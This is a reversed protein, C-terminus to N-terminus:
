TTATMMGEGLYRSLVQQRALNAPGCWSVEGRQLLLCEDAFGLARHVYQETVIVTVGLRRAQELGDFVADVMLPALGLSLEDAVLVTPWMALARALSLMQQEGGSLTAALQHRRAGLVPFLEFARELAQHRRRRDGALRTAMRLNELVTLERFVGRGEPLHVVGARRIRYAPWRSVDAGGVVVRGDHPVLGSVARALSSKGAGNPGLVALVAGPALTFSVARLAVADGYRVGLGDVVVAPQSTAGGAGPAGPVAGAGVPTAPSGAPTAPPGAPTAPPGAPTAYPQGALAASADVGGGAGTPRADRRDLEEGLYAARVAPDNRIQEPTGHAVLRGFDLVSVASCLRMVLDVDHEVLLVSIDHETAVRRLTVEFQETDASDLGSSPEDLLLVRPASALARGLELLRAVGLPLGAAPREAFPGLGLTEIVSDVAQREAPTPRHVSGLTFLDAWVRRPAHRARHALVLHDRVTVGPFLEPHQFTRAMGLQARRQPGSRTVDTGDIRVTGATPRLLGSLVGFLTTKGAGNPGVLGVIASPPVDLDVDEVAVVGGFRVTVGACSLRTPVSTM